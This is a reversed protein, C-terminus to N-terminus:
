LSIQGKQASGNNELRQGKSGGKEGREGGGEARIQAVCQEQGRGSGVVAM